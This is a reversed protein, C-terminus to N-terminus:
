TIPGHGGSCPFLAFKRHHVSRNNVRKPALTHNFIPLQPIECYWRCATLYAQIFRAFLMAVAPLMVGDSRIQELKRWAAKAQMKM